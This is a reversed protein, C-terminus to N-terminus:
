GSTGSRLAEEADQLRQRLPRLAAPDPALVSEVEALDELVERIHWVGPGGALYRDLEAVAAAWGAMACHVAM